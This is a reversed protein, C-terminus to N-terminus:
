SANYIATLSDKIISIAGQKGATMGSAALCRIADHDADFKAVIGICEDGDGAKAAIALADLAKAADLALGRLAAWAADGQQVAEVIRAASAAPSAHAKLRADAAKAIGMTPKSLDIGNSAIFDLLESKTMKSLDKNM